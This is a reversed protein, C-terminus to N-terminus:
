AGGAHPGRRHADVVVGGDVNSEGAGRAEFSAGMGVPESYTHARAEAKAFRWFFLLNVHRVFCFLQLFSAAGKVAVGPLTDDAVVGVAVGDFFFEDVPAAGVFDGALEADGVVAGDVAV